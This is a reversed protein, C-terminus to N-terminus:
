QKHQMYIYTYCNHGGESTCVYLGRATCTGHVTFFVKYLQIHDMSYVCILAFCFMEVQYVPSSMSHMHKHRLHLMCLTMTEHANLPVTNYGVPFPVWTSCHLHVLLCLSTKYSRASPFRTHICVSNCAFKCYRFTYQIPIRACFTIQHSAKYSLDCQSLSCHVPIYKLESHHIHNYLYRTKVVRCGQTLTTVFGPQEGGPSFSANALRNQFFLLSRNIDEPNVCCLPSISFLM